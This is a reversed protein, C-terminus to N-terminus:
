SAVEKSSLTFQAALSMQIDHCTAAMWAVTLVSRPSAERNAVNRRYFM